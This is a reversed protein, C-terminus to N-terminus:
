LLYLSGTSAGSFSSSVKHGGGGSAAERAAGADNGTGCGANAARRSLEKSGFTRPNQGHVTGAGVKAKGAIDLTKAYVNGAIVRGLGDDIRGKAGKSLNIHDIIIGADAAASRRRFGSVLHKIPHQRDIKAGGKANRALRHWM